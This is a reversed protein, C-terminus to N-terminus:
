IVGENQLLEIIFTQFSVDHEKTYQNLADFEDDTLYFAKLRPRALGSKIKSWPRTKQRKLEEQQWKELEDMMDDMKEGGKIKAILIMVNLM